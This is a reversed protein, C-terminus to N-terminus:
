ADEEPDYVKPPCSSTPPRALGAIGGAIAADRTEATKVSQTRKGEMIATHAISM